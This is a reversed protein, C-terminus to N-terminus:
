QLAGRRGTALCQRAISTLCGVDLLQLSQQLPPSISMVKEQNQEVQREEELKQQFLLEEEKM